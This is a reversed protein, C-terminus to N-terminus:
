RRVGSTAFALGFEVAQAVDELCEILLEARQEGVGVADGLAYALVDRRLDGGVRRVLVGLLVRRVGRAHRVVLGQALHHLVEQLVIRLHVFLEDIIFRELAEDAIHHIRDRILSSGSGVRVFSDKSPSACLCRVGCVRFQSRM